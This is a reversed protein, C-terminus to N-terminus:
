GDATSETRKLVVRGSPLRSLTVDVRKGRFDLHVLKLSAIQRPLSPPFREVLGDAEIRLGSLGFVFAQIFGGSTALLYVSNNQPTESRVNFPPKLYPDGAKRGGIFDDFYDADGVQAAQIALMVLIMQNARGRLSM